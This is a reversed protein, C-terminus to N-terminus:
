TLIVLYDILFTLICTSLIVGYHTKVLTKNDHLRRMANVQAAELAYMILMLKWGDM